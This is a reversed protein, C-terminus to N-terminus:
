PQPWSRSPPKPARWGSNTVPLPVMRRRGSSASAMLSPSSWARTSAASPPQGRGGGPGRHPGTAPPRHRDGPGGAPPPGRARPVGALGHPRGRERRQPSPGAAAGGGPGTGRGRGRGVARGPVPARRPARRPLRRRLARDVRHGRAPRAIWTRIARHLAPLAEAKQAVFSDRSGWQELIWLEWERWRLGRRALAEGVATKGSGPAGLLVVVDGVTVTHDTVPHRHRDVAFTWSTTGMAVSRRTSASSLGPWSAAIPPSSPLAPMLM